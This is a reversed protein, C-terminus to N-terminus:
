MKWYSHISRDRMDKRVEALFVELEEVSWKLGRTFLALSLGQIGSSIDELAWM